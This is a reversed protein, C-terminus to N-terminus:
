VAIDFAVSVRGEHAAEGGALRGDEGADVVLPPALHGVAGFTSGGGVCVCNYQKM